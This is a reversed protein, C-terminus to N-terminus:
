ELIWRFFLEGGDIILHKGIIEKALENRMRFEDAKMFYPSIKLGTRGNILDIIDEVKKIETKSFNEKILLLDLDSAKTSYGKVISGFILMVLYDSYKEKLMELARQLTKQKELFVLARNSEVLSLLSYIGLSKQLSYYKINAETRVELVNQKVLKRLTRLTRPRTMKTVKVLEAFYHKKLDLFVELLKIEPFSLLTNNEYM